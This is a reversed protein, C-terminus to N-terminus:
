LVDSSTVNRRVKELPRFQHQGTSCSTCWAFCPQDRFSAHLKVQAAADPVNFRYYTGPSSLLQSELQRHAEEADTAQNKLTNILHVFYVVGRFKLISEFGGVSRELKVDRTGTGISVVCGFRRGAGFEKVAEPLLISVPNNVGIAADIYTRASAGKGLRQPKFFSSAATTARAAEWIKVDEDWNDQAGEDGDFSRVIDTKGINDSPMVCVFAKGKKPRKPDRMSEGLGRKKVLGQIAEKLATARFKESISWSKHNDKSFIKAACNDYEALAEKTSMRLRGLMIAILGGTSTGAIMHFFECPKPVEPLKYMEKIKRM